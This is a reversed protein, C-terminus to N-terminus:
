IKFCMSVMDILNILEISLQVTTTDRHNKAPRVMTNYTKLLRQALRFEEVEMPLALETLSILFLCYVTAM